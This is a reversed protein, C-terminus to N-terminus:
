LSPPALHMPSPESHGAWSRGRAVQREVEQEETPTTCVLEDTDLTLGHAYTVQSQSQALYRHVLIQEGQDM